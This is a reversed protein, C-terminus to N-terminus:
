AAPVEAQVRSGRSRSRPSHRPRPRPVTAERGLIPTAGSEGAAAAAPSSSDILSRIVLAACTVPAAAGAAWSSACGSCTMSTTGGGNFGGLATLTGDFPNPSVIGNQGRGAVRFNLTEGATVAVTASVSGGLGGNGGVLGGGPLMDGGSGGQVEFVALDCGGAGGVAGGCRHLRVHLDDHGFGDCLIRGRGVVPRDVDGVCCWCPLRIAKADTGRIPRAISSGRVPLLVSRRVAINLNRPLGRTTQM